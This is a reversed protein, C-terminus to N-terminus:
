EEKPTATSRSLRTEERVLFTARWSRKRRVSFFVKLRRGSARHSQQCSEQIDGGTPAGDERLRAGELTGNALSQARQHTQASPTQGADNPGVAALKATPAGLVKKMGTTIPLGLLQKTGDKLPRQRVARAPQHAYRYIIGAQALGTATDLLREILAIRQRRGEMHIQHQPQAEQLSGQQHGGIAQRRDARPSQGDAELFHGPDLLRRAFGFRLGPLFILLGDFLVVERLAEHPHHALQALFQIQGSALLLNQHQGAVATEAVARAEAGRPIAGLQDGARALIRHQAPSGRLPPAAKVAGLFESGLLHPLILLPSPLLGFDEIPAPPSFYAVFLHGPHVPLAARAPAWQSQQYHRGSGVALTLAALQIIALRSEQQGGIELMGDLLQQLDVEVTPLDFDIM